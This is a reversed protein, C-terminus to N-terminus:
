GIESKEVQVPRSSMCEEVGIGMQSLSRSYEDVSCNLFELNSQQVVKISGAFSAPSWPVLVTARGDKHKEMVYCPEGGGSGDRILAPCVESTDTDILASSIVKLMRYMPVKNLVSNEVSRGVSRLWGSRAMLGLIFSAGVILILAIVGPSTLNDFTGAPFLDVIFLDVIPAAMAALLGGIEQLGIWLLMLPLLVFLGGLLTTKLFNM